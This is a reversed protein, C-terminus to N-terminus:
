KILMEALEEYSMGSHLEYDGNQLTTAMNNAMLYRDFSDADDIVGLTELKEAVEVSTMGSIVSFTIVSSTEMQGSMGELSQEGTPSELSSEELSQEGTVGEKSSSNNESTQGSEESIEEGSSEEKASEKQTMQVTETEKQGYVMGLEKARSIIRPDSMKYSYLVFLIVTAVVLGTGFGRLFYKTKM